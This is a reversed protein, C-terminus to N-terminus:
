RAAPALWVRVEQERNNEFSLNLVVEGARSTPELEIVAQGQENLSYVPDRDGVSILQNERAADVEWQSRYPPAVHYVGVAAPRAPYGERDFMDLVILPRSRGDAVLKSSSQNFRARVPGGSYHVNRVIRQAVAGDRDRVEIELQNDGPVINTGRWRSIIVSKDQKRTVGDFHIGSVPEGNISVSVKHQPAHKVAIKLSPIAPNFGERPLLLEIGPSLRDAWATDLYLDDDSQPVATDQMEDATLSGTVTAKQAGSNLRSQEASIQQLGIQQREAWITLEVRRNRARGDRTTNSAVPMDPGKGEVTIQSPTLKLLDRLYNAVTRARDLSLEYNNAYERRNEPAIRVNDTHGVARVRIDRTLDIRSVLMKIDQRDTDTLQANRVGFRPELVWEMREYAPPVFVFLNEALPTRQQKKAPTTFLAMAKTLHERSGHSNIQTSFRLVHHWDGSRAGLNWALVAGEVEPDVVPQADLTASGALYNSGDPLLVMSRIDELGVSGAGTIELAYEVRDGNPVSSLEISVDGTKPPTKQVYFDARWLAGPRLDVFQSFSRGAFRSNEQCPMVEYDRPLSDVDLQVVHAGPQIGEFHFRGGEDTIAYRGDEMYVRANALGVTDNSVDNDCSGEIIRGILISRSAFLDEALTITTSAINSQAAGGAQAVATNTAQQGNTATTIETVYSVRRSQTPGLTGLTFTLSRGDTDIQPDAATNGDIVTSGRVYRFGAPLQDLIRAATVNSTPNANDLRLEYQVFDGPAAVTTVTSKQLFLDSSATDLPIDIHIIPGPTVVFVAGYSAAGLAFPAGPLQQLEAISVLSPSSFGPPSDVQLRYSGPAVLPFVYGGPAFTYNNGAGDTASGGSIVQAPYSSIGDDGRVIAPMGTLTDILTITVGDVPQGTASDFVVGRPDVLASNAAIDAGDTPDTYRVTARDNVAVQLVCDSRIAATISTPVYGLFVGSNEGTEALKIFEVDGTAEFEVTVDIFDISLGDLNQDADELRIFLPEGAHFVNSTSFQLSSGTPLSTGDLLTPDPLAVTGASGQCATEYLTDVTGSVLAPRTFSVAASSDPLVTRITVPNSTVSSVGGPAALWTIGAINQLQTGPLTQASTATIGCVPLFLLVTFRASWRRAGRRSHTSAGGGVISDTRKRQRRQQACRMLWRLAGPLGSVMLLHSLM